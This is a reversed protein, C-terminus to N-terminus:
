AGGAPKTSRKNPTSAGGIGASLYADLKDDRVVLVTRASKYTTITGRQAAAHVAQVTVGKTEAVERLSLVPPATAKPM